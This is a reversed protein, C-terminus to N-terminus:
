SQENIRSSNIFIIFYMDSLLYVKTLAQDDLNITQKKHVRYDAM